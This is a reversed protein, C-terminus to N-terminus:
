SYFDLLKKSLVDSDNNFRMKLRRSLESKVQCNLLPKLGFVTLISNLLKNNESFVKIYLIKNKGSESLCPVLLASGLANEIDSESVFIQEENLRKLIIKLIIKSILVELVDLKITHAKQLNNTLTNIEKSSLQHEPHETLIKNLRNKLDANASLIELDEIWPLNAEKAFIKILFNLIDNIEENLLSNVKKYELLEEYPDYVDGIFYITKSSPKIYRHLIKELIRHFLLDSTNADCDPHYQKQLYKLRYELKLINKWIMFIVSNAYNFLPFGAFEPSDPTSNKAKKNHKIFNEVANHQINVKISESQEKVSAKLEELFNPNLEKLKDYRGIKDITRHAIKGNSKRYAEVVYIYEYKGAKRIQVYM